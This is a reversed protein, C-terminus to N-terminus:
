SVNCHVLLYPPLVDNQKESTITPALRLFVKASGKLVFDIEFDNLLFKIPTFSNWNVPINIAEITRIKEFFPLHVYQVHKPLPLNEIYPNPALIVPTQSHHDRPLSPTPAHISSHTQRSLNKRALNIQYIKNVLQPTLNSSLM